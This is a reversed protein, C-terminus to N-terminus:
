QTRGIMAQRGSTYLWRITEYEFPSGTQYYQFPTNARTDVGNMIYYFYLWGDSGNMDMEDLYWSSVAIDVAVGTTDRLNSPGLLPLVIYPEDGAGL